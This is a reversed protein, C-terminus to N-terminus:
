IMDYIMACCLVAYCIVLMHKETERRPTICTYIYIYVFTYVHIHLSLSLSICVYACFYHIYM